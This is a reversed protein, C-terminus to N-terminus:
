CPCAGSDRMFLEATQPVVYGAMQAMLATPTAGEQRAALAAVAAEDTPASLVGALADDSGGQRFREVFSACFHAWRLLLAEDLVAHFRRFELTGYETLRRLNLGCYRGIRSAPTHPAVPPRPAPM